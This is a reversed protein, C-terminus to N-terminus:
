KEQIMRQVEKQSDFIKSDPANEIIREGLNVVWFSVFLSFVLIVMTGIHTSIHMSLDLKRIKMLIRRLKILCRELVGWTM